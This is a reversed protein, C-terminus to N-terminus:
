LSNQLEIRREDLMGEHRLDLANDSAEWARLPTPAGVGM